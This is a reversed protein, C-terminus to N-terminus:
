DAKACLEKLDSRWRPDKSITVGLVKFSTMREIRCNGIMLASTAILSSKAPNIFM